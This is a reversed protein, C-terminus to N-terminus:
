GNCAIVDNSCDTTPCPHRLWLMIGRKPQLKFTLVGNPNARRLLFELLKLVVSLHTHTSLKFRWRSVNKYLAALVHYHWEFMNPAFGDTWNSRREYTHRSYFADDCKNYATRGINARVVFTQTYYHAGNFNEAYISSICISNETYIHIFIRIFCRPKCQCEM